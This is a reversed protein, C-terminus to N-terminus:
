PNLSAPIIREYGFGPFFPYGPVMVFDVNADTTAGTNEWICVEFTATDIAILDLDGDGDLDALRVDETDAPNLPPEIPGFWGGSTGDDSVGAALFVQLPAVDSDAVIDADGDGDLDGLAITRIDAGSFLRAGVHNTFGGTGDGVWLAIGGNFASVLDPIEDGTTVTGVALDRSFNSGFLVPDSLEPDGSSFQGTGDNLFVSNDEPVANGRAVALDPHGDLNFDSTVIEVPDTTYSAWDPDNQSIEANSFYVSINPLVSLPSVGFASGTVLDQLDDGNVDIVLLATYDVYSTSMTQFEFFPDLPSDPWINFYTVIPDVSRGMIVDPYGDFTIDAVAIGKMDNTFAGPVVVNATDFSIPGGFPSTNILIAQQPQTALLLDLRAPVAFEETGYETLYGDDNRVFVNVRYPSGDLAGGIEDTDFSLVGRQWESLHLANVQAREFTDIEGTRSIAISYELQDAATGVDFAAPWTAVFRDFAMETIEIPGGPSPAQQDLIDVFRFSDCGALVLALALLLM